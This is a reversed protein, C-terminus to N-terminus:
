DKKLKLVIGHQKLQNIGNPDVPAGLDLGKQYMKGAQAWDKKLCYYGGYTIYSNPTNPSLKIAEDLLTKVEDPPNEYKMCLCRALNHYISQQKKDLQLAARYFIIGDDINGQVCCVHAVAAYASADKGNMNIAQFFSDLAADVKKQKFAVWGAKVFTSSQRMRYTEKTDGPLYEKARKYLPSTPAVQIKIAQALSPLGILLGLVCSFGALVTRRPM